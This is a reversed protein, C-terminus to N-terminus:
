RSVPSVSIPQIPLSVTASSTASSVVGTSAPPLNHAARARWCLALVQGGPVQCFHCSRAAGSGVRGSM